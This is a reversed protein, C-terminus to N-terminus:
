LTTLQHEDPLLRSELPTAFAAGRGSTSALTTSQDHERPFSLSIRPLLFLCILVRSFLWLRRARKQRTTRKQHMDPTWCCCGVSAGKQPLEGGARKGKKASLLTFVVAVCGFLAYYM